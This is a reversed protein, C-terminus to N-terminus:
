VFLPTCSQVGNDVLAKLQAAKENSSLYGGEETYMAFRILNCGWNDRFFRFCDANIYEPFWQIGHTSIGKLQKKAGTSDCLDAGIVQLSASSTTQIQATTGSYTPVTGYSLAVNTYAKSILLIAFFTTITHILKKNM